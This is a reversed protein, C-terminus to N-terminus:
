VIISQTLDKGAMPTRRSAPTSTGAGGTKGSGLALMKRAGSKKRSSSGGRRSPSGAAPPSSPTPQSGDASAALVDASSLPSSDIEHLRLKKLEGKAQLQVQEDRAQGTTSAYAQQWERTLQWAAQAAAYSAGPATSGVEDALSEVEGDELEAANVEPPPSDSANGDGSAGHESSGRSPRCGGAAGYNASVDYVKIHDGGPIAETSACVARTAGGQSHSEGSHRQRGCTHVGSSRVGLSQHQGGTRGDSREPSLNSSSLSPFRPVLNPREPSRVPCTRGWTEEFGPPSLNPTFSNVRPSFAHDGNGRQETPAASFFYGGVKAAARANNLATICAALKAQAMTSEEERFRHVEALRQRLGEITGDRASVQEELDAITGELQAQLKQAEEVQAEHKTQVTLAQSCCGLSAHFRNTLISVHFAPLGVPCTHYLLMSGHGCSVEAKAADRVVTGITKVKDNLAAVKSEEEKKAASLSAIRAEWDAVLKDRREDMGEMEAKMDAAAAAHEDRETKRNAAVSQKADEYMGVIVALKAGYGKVDKVDAAVQQGATRQQRRFVFTTPDQLVPDKKPRLRLLRTM